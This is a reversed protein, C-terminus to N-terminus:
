SAVFANEHEWPAVCKSAWSLRLNDKPCCKHQGLPLLFPAVELAVGLCDWPQGLFTKIHLV